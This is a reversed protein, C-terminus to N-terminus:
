REGQLNMNARERIAREEDAPISCIEVIQPEITPVSRIKFLRCGEGGNPQVTISRGVANQNPQPYQPTPPATEVDPHALDMHYHQQPNDEYCHHEFDCVQDAHGVVPMAILGVVLALRKLSIMM